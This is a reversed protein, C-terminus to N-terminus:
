FVYPDIIRIHHYCSGVAIFCVQHCAQHDFSKVLIQKLNGPDSIFFIELFPFQETFIQQTNVM